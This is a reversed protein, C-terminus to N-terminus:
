RNPRVSLSGSMSQGYFTQVQRAQMYYRHRQKTTLPIPGSLYGENYAYMGDISPCSFTSRITTRSPRTSNVPRMIALRTEEEILRTRVLEEKRKKNFFLLAAGISSVIYFYIEM